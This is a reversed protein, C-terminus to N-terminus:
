KKITNEINSVMATWGDAPAEKGAVINGETAGWFEWVASMAPIAPMPVGKGSVEAFGKIDPDSIGEAVSTMAPVRGGLDFMKQQVDKTGMYQMFKSVLLGNETKASPFFAQVGVFPQAEKGGASPIPLVSIDMGAKRFADTNWPGTVIYPAKGDLFTQKAIDASVSLDLIGAGGQAKLWEAFAAGEPGKLGLQDTYSGDAEQMFVPAGFSTQFAYVHYPDLEGNEGAQVVFPREAGTAKGSAIMDDFTAPTDQTLKNNRILAVSEVAYPMGYTQGGYTVGQVAAPALDAKASGLDVTGVVGNEVLQGLGDHATVIVDPGNGTPVQTIFEQTIDATPKQVVNLGIKTKETFDKSFELLQPYRTDDAWVTITGLEGKTGAASQAGDAKGSMATKNDASGCAALTASLAIAGMIAIGRRM